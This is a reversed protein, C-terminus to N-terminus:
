HESPREARVLRAARLRCCRDRCVVQRIFATCIVVRCGVFLARRGLSPGEGQITPGFMECLVLTREPDDAMFRQNM